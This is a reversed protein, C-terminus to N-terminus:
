SMIYEEDFVTCNDIIIQKVDVFLDVHFKQNKQKSIKKRYTTHKLGLSLHYGQQREHATVETLSHKKSIFRNMGFGMERLPVRRDENESRLLEILKEFADPGEHSVICGNEIVIKFPQVIQTRQELSPFGHVLLAGNVKELHMAETFVEGIPLLTGKSESFNGINRKPEDVSADYVLQSGDTSVIAVRRCQKLKNMLFTSIKEYRPYDYTLSVIYTDYEEKKMFGLRVHEICYIGRTILDLRIRYDSIRFSASQILVVLNGSSIKLLEEKWEAETHTSFLFFAAHHNKLAKEYADKITLALESGADYIVTVNQELTLHINKMLIDNINKELQDINM